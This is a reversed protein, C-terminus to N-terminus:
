SMFDDGKAALKEGSRARSRKIAASILGGLGGGILLPTALLPVWAWSWGDSAGGIIGVLLAVVGLGLVILAGRM